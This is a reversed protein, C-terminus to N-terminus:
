WWEQDKPWRKQKPRNWPKTGPKLHVKHVYLDTAPLNVISGADLDRYTYLLRKVQFKSNEDSCIDGITAMCTNFWAEIVQKSENSLPRLVPRRLTPFSHLKTPSTNTPNIGFKHQPELTLQSNLSFSTPCYKESISASITDLNHTSPPNASPLDISTHPIFELDLM